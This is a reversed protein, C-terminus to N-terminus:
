MGLESKAQAEALRALRRRNDAFARALADADVGVERNLVKALLGAVRAVESDGKKILEDALAKDRKGVAPGETSKERVSPDLKIADYTSQALAQTESRFEEITKGSTAAIRKFFKGDSEWQPEEETGHNIREVKYLKELADVFNTRFTSNTGHLVQYKIADELVPNTRDPALANFEEISDPVPVNVDYGMTSVVINHM